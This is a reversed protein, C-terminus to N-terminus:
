YNILLSQGPEKFVTHYFYPKWWGLLDIFRANNYLQWANSIEEVYSGEGYEFYNNAREELRPLLHQLANSKGGHGESIDRTGKILVLVIKPNGDKKDTVKRLFVTYDQTNRVNLPLGTVKGFMAIDVILTGFMLSQIKRTGKLHQSASCQVAWQMEELSYSGGEIEDLADGVTRTKSRVVGIAGDPLGTTCPDFADVSDLLNAAQDITDATTIPVVIMELYDCFQAESIATTILTVMDNKNNIVFTM